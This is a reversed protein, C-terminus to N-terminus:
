LTVTISPITTKRGKVVALAGCVESITTCTALSVMLTAIVILKTFILEIGFPFTYAIHSTSTSAHQSANSISFVSDVCRITQGSSTSIQIRVVTEKGLISNFDRGHFVIIRFYIQKIFSEFLALTISADDVGCLGKLCHVHHLYLFIRVSVDWVDLLLVSSLFLYTSHFLPKLLM